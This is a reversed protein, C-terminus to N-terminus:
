GQSAAELVALAQDLTALGKNIESRLTLTVGFAAQSHEDLAKMQKSSAVHSRFAGIAAKAKAAAALRQAGTSGELAFLAQMVPTKHNETLAPLGLDAIRKFDPDKSARMKGAVQNLQGDITEMCAIWIQRAASWARQFDQDGGTPASAAKPAATSQEAPGAPTKRAADPKDGPPTAAAPATGLAEELKLLAKLATDFDGANAKEV